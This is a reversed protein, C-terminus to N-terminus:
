QTPSIMFHKSYKLDYKMHMPRGTLVMMRLAGEHPRAQASFYSTITARTLGPVAQWDTGGRRVRDSV